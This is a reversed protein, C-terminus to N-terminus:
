RRRRRRAVMALAGLAFITLTAPEPSVCLRLAEADGDLPVISTWWQFGTSAGSFDFTIGSLDDNTIGGGATLIDFCDGLSPSFASVLDVDVTGGLTATGAVDIWDYTTGQGLGGLEALMTGSQAYDDLITLHGPSNGASITGGANVIVQGAITGSGGLMGGDVAVNGSGTGSGTTNNVLLVGGNVTTGGGYTSDGSLIQTGTGTKVLNFSDQGAKGLIGDFTYDASNNITLTPTGAGSNVVRREGTATTAQTLGAITQNHGFLDLIGGAYSGGASHGLTVVTAAPMANDVGLKLTGRYIRTAGWTNGGVNLLLTATDCVALTNGGVNIPHSGVTITGNGYGGFSPSGGTIGGTLAFSDTAGIVASGSITIPGSWTNNGGASRLAGQWSGTGSISIPEAVNIGGSLELRSGNAVTTGASTAGLANPHTVKLVGGSVTTAGTYTNNGSLIQTGSGQKVLHTMGSIVGSFTYDNSDGITLTPTSTSVLELSAGFWHFTGSGTPSMTISTTPATAAFKYSYYGVTGPDTGLLQQSDSGNTFTADQPRGAWAGVQTYLMANYTQGVTLGTFTLVGPNGNYYFDDMLQAYGTYGSTGIEEGYLSPAGTLSWGTGSTGVSNFAVSNVTAGTGNGFDLKQVYNKSSSILAAGDAGTTLVNSRTVNGAGSLGAVTHSDAGLDWTAGLAVSVAGSGTANAAAANLTGGTITTGGTYTNAGGLTFTGSGDKVLNFSDQGAKGLIGDFTYDASNNITLTPTGAGSNVVRREGTATTAQTLGAITQNHGFLDLIGGAYSGGASHGLTVVTAAPMANDVGLKLTSRYIHTGGWTNGGINLVVTTDDSVGLTNAGGINIPQGSVTITGNGYGGLYLNYNGTIGGTLAFANNTTVGIRSSGTLAIPGSWTNDGGVSRLAGGAGSVGNGSISIPEAVTIGGSVELQSGNPVTTSASTAGLANPHTVKLVGGSVTTTGSYTNAGGLTLTGDGTKTLGGSGAIVNPVTLTHGSAAELTGGSAGMTVGRNSDDIAFSATAKLTGGDLLLADADFSGHIWVDSPDWYGGPNGGLNAEDDISITGANITTTGTIYGTYTKTGSNPYADLITVTGSGDKVVNINTTQNSYRRSLRRAEINGSGSFTVTPIRNPQCMIDSNFDLLGSGNNIVPFYGNVNPRVECNFTQNGGDATVGSGYVYIVGGVGPSVTFDSGGSFTLGLGWGDSHPPPPLGLVIDTTDSSTFRVLQGSTPVGSSWNLANRWENDTPSNLWITDARGRGALFVIACSLCLAIAKLRPSRGLPEM